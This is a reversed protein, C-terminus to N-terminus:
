STRFFGAFRGELGNLFMEWGLRSRMMARNFSYGMMLRPPVDVFFWVARDNTGVLAILKEDIAQALGLDDSILAAAFEETLRLFLDNIM